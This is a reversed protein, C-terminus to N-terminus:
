LCFFLVSRRVKESTKSFWTGADANEDCALDCVGCAKPCAVFVSVGNEDKMKTKCRSDAKKKVWECNKDTIGKSFWNDDNECGPTLDGVHCRCANPCADAALRGDDPNGSVAACNKFVDKRVWDCNKSVDKKAYWEDDDVVDCGVDCVKKCGDGCVHGCGVKAKVKAASKKKCRKETKKAVWECNKKAKKSFWAWDDTCVPKAILNEGGSRGIEAGCVCKDQCCCEGDEKYFDAAVLNDGLEWVCTDWCSARDSMEFCKDVGGSCWGSEWTSRREFNYDGRSAHAKCACCNENAGFANGCLYVNGEYVSCSDGNLDTWGPTDECTENDYPEAYMACDTRMVLAVDADTCAGGCASDLLHACDDCAILCAHKPRPLECAADDLPGTDLASGDGPGRLLRDNGVCATDRDHGPFQTLAGTTARRLLANVAADGGGGLAEAYLALAGAVAPTAMSTGDWAVLSPNDDDGVLEEDDM